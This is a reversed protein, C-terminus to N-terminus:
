KSGSKIALPSLREGLHLEIKPIGLVLLKIRFVMITKTYGRHFIVLNGGNSNWKPVIRKRWYPTNDRHEIRQEGRDIADYYKHKLVLHLHPFFSNTNDISFPHKGNKHKWRLCRMEADNFACNKCFLDSIIEWPVQIIKRM